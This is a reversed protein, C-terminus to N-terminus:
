AQPLFGEFTMQDAHRRTQLVEDPARVTWTIVPDGRERRVWDVFPNPLHHVNYSVFRCGREYIARHEVLTEAKLSEATLGIPLTTAGLAQDILWPDFSMLALQGEYAEVIPQLSAFLDTDEVDSLGKMEMVIPVRGAVLDLLRRVTPITDETSGLRIRGLEEATRDAVRGTEATVRGLSTDHFVVPTRDKSLMVDCEIAYGADIAARFASLSNEMVAVNGDHLGRHAIPRATLWALQSRVNADITLTM